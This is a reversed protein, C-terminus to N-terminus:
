LFKPLDDVLQDELDHLVGTDLVAIACLLGVATATWFVFSGIAGSAERLAPRRETRALSARILRGAIEGFLLGSSLAIAAFIWQWLEMDPGKVRKTPVQPSM